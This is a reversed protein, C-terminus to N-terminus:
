LRTDNAFGNTTNLHLSAISLIIRTPFMGGNM